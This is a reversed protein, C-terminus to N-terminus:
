KNDGEPTRKEVAALRREFDDLVSQVEKFGKDVRDALGILKEIADHVLDILRGIPKLVFRWFVGMGGAAVSLAGFDSFWGDWAEPLFGGM